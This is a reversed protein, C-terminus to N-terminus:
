EVRIGDKTFLWENARITDLIAEDSTIYEYEDELIEMFTRKLKQLFKNIESEIEDILNEDFEEEKWEIYVDAKMNHNISVDVYPNEERKLCEYFFKNKTEPSLVKEFLKRCNNVYLSITLSKRQLDFSFNNDDLIEMGYDNLLNEFEDLCGDWWGFEVLYYRNKEIIDNKVEEDLEDITYVTIQKM